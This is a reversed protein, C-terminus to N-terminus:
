FTIELKTELIDEMAVAYRETVTMKGKGTEKKVRKTEELTISEPTAEVLIGSLRDGDKKKVTVTRGINKVYQRFVKFPKDLGPSSVELAFDEAERDLSSEIARSIKRLASLDVGSDRDVFVRIRNDESLTLEVLFANEEKLTEEVTEQLKSADM